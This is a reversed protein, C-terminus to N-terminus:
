AGAARAVCRRFRVALMAEGAAACLAATVAVRGVVGPADATCALAAGAAGLITVGAFTWVVRGRVHAPLSRWVPDRRLHAVGLVGYAMCVVLVPLVVVAALNTHSSISDAWSSVRWAIALIALWLFSRLVATNAPRRASPM